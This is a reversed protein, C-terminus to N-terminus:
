RAPNQRLQGVLALAQDRDNVEGAYVAAELERLLEGVRRARSWGGCSTAACRCSRRATSRAMAAGRGDGRAGARPAGRDVAGPGGRPHGPPRRVLARHGGGRGARLPAPLRAARAADLPRDHVLFGLVLHERTLKGVYARLKESTRLRRFIDGVMEEGVADHGIFTVRGDPREGRTAPKAVDHFLAGFRLAEGRTLEDALPEALM